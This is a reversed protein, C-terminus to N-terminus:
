LSTWHNFGLFTAVLTAVIALGLIIRHPRMTWSALFLVPLLGVSLWFIGEARNGRVAINSVFSERLSLLGLILGPTLWGFCAAAVILSPWDRKPRKSEVEEREELAEENVLPSTM